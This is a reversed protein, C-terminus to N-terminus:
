IYINQFCGSKRCLCSTEMLQIFGPDFKRQCTSPTIKGHRPLKLSSPCAPAILLSHLRVLISDSYKIAGMVGWGSSARGRMNKLFTRETEGQEQVITIKTEMPKM